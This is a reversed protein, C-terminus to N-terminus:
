LLERAALACRMLAERINALATRNEATDELAAELLQLEGSVITLANNLEHVIRGVDRSPEESV